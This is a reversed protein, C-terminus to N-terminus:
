RAGSPRCSITTPPNNALTSTQSEALRLLPLYVHPHHHHHCVNPGPCSSGYIRFAPTEAAQGHRSPRGERHGANHRHTPLLKPPRLNTNIGPQPQHILPLRTSNSAPQFAIIRQSSATRTDRSDLVLHRSHMLLPPLRAQGRTGSEGCYFVFFSLDCTLAIDLHKQLTYRPRTILTTDAASSLLHSPSSGAPRLTLVRIQTRRQRQALWNGTM